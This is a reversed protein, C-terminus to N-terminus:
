WSTGRGAPIIGVMVNNWTGVEATVSHRRYRANSKLTLYYVGAATISGTGEGFTGITRWNTNDDSEQICLTMSTGAAPLSAFYTVDVLDQGMDVGTGNETATVNTSGDRLLANKDIAM